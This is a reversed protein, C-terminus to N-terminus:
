LFDHGPQGRLQQLFTKGGDVFPGVEGGVKGHWPGLFDVGADVAIPAKHQLFRCTATCFFRRKVSLRDFLKIYSSPMALLSHRRKSKGSKVAAAHLKQM